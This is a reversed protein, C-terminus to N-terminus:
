PNLTQERGNASGQLAFLFGGFRTGDISRSFDIVSIKKAEGLGAVGPCFGVALGIGSVTYDTDSVLEKIPAQCRNRSEPPIVIVCISTM